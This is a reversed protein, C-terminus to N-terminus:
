WWKRTPTKKEPKEPKRLPNDEAGAEGVAERNTWIYFRQMIETRDLPRVGYGLNDWGDDLCPFGHVRFFARLHLCAEKHELARQRSEADSAMEVDHVAEEFDWQPPFRAVMKIRGTMVDFGDHYHGSGCSPCSLIMNHTMGRQRKNPVTLWNMELEQSECVPCPPPKAKRMV